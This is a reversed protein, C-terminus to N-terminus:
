DNTPHHQGLSTAVVYGADDKTLINAEDMVRDLADVRYWPLWKIYRAYNAVSVLFSIFLFGFYPFYQWWYWKGWLGWAFWCIEAFLSVFIIGTFLTTMLITPDVLLGEITQRLKGKQSRFVPSSLVNDAWM